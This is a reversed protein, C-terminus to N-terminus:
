RDGRGTEGVEGAAAREVRSLPGHDAFLPRFQEAGRARAVDPRVAIQCAEAGPRGRREVGDVGPARVTRGDGAELRGQALEVAGDLRAGDGGDAVFALAAAGEGSGEVPSVM